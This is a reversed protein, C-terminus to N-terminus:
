HRQNSHHNLSLTTYIPPLIALILILISSYFLVQKEGTEEIEKGKIKINIIIDSTRYDNRTINNPKNLIWLKKV